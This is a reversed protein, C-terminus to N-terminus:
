SEPHDSHHDNTNDKEDEEIEKKVQEKNLLLPNNLTENIEHKEENQVPKTETDAAVPQRIFYRDKGWHYFFIAAILVLSGLLYGGLVDSAWHEGLYVRSVGIFAIFVLIVINILYRLWTRKLLTFSFFLLFGFFATYFMVHGSPFSFSSLVQFVHVLNAEPRPRHVAIKILTNLAVTVISTLFASLTEWRLGFIALFAVVLVIISASQIVYGPWSIVQMIVGFWAPMEAQLERTILVDPQFVPMTNALLALITFAIIAFFVYGQFLYTRVQRLRESAIWTRAAQWRRSIWRRHRRHRAPTKHSKPHRDSQSVKEM